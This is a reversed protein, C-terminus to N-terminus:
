SGRSARSRSSRTNWTPSSPRSSIRPCRGPRPPGFWCTPTTCFARVRARERLSLPSRRRGSGSPSPVKLSPWERLSLPSRLSPRERLLPSTAFRLPEKQGSAVSGAVKERGRELPFRVYVSPDAVQRYGQGVEGSSLATGGQAWWWVIKHGQYLLGRDFLNKLAWWVSEVYSQHYTVYAEDLRIWFGLRETLQEWQQTYRFVSELCKRIFPEVGYSEIEEKSHIGLEKCVEVEVPLGHTDWGAKRQCRYGRMTKYRPFLDKIARTLCHGPHPLGNATPPGEYFVFSPATPGPLWRNKTFGKSSGFDPSKKKSSPSPFPAKSPNFCPRCWVAATEM